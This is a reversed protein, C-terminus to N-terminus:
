STTADLLLNDLNLRTLFGKRHGYDRTLDRIYTNHHPIAGWDNIMAALRRCSALHRVARNYRNSQGTELIFEAVLRLCVSAALPQSGELAEAVGLLLTEDGGHLQDPRALILRATRRRDPWRHLFELAAPGNPHHLVTELAEERAPEDEFAPLLRLYDRLHPLSLRDLAFDKRLRQADERRGLAELAALHADLWRRYGDSRLGRRLRVAELLALAQEPQGAATLRRAVRAAIRPRRLGAPHHDRYEAWYAQADGLGDAISLMALRVEQHRDEPDLDGDEQSEFDPEFDGIWGADGTEGNEDEDEYDNDVMEPDYFSYLSYVDSHTCVGEDEDVEEGERDRTEEEVWFAGPDGDLKAPREAEMRARLRLLGEAGLAPTLHAILHEYQGNHDTLLAEAVQDALAAPPQGVRSAVVGLDASVRDFLRLALDDSDDCRDLLPSALELFRWLLDLALAPAQDAIAGAIGLRQRELDALLVDRDRIELWRSSREVAALRQRVAQALEQPGGNEALALRLTRRAAANGETVELLLSALRAAGLGELNKANLSSRGAMALAPFPRSAARPSSLM